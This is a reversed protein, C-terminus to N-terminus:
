PEKNSISTYLRDLREEIAESIEQLFDVNSLENIDNKAWNSPLEHKQVQHERWNMMIEYVTKM